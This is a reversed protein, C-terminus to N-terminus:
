RHHMTRVQCACFFCYHYTQRLHDLVMALKAHVPWDEWASSAQEVGATDQADAHEVEGANGLDVPKDAQADNNLQPPFPWM